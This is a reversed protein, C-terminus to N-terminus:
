ATKHRRQNNSQKIENDQRQKKLLAKIITENKIKTKM